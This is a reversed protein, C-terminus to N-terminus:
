FIVKVWKGNRRVRFESDAETAIDLLNLSRRIVETMSGAGIREQLKDLLLRTGPPMTLHLREKRLRPKKTM